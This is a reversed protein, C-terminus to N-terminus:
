ALSYPPHRFLPYTVFDVSHYFINQHFGQLRFPIEYSVFHVVHGREALALGLETALIGSGGASPHCTIGIRM